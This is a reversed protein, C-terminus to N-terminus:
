RKAMKSRAAELIKREREDLSQIGQASIKDLIPDVERSIFEESPMEESPATPAAWGHTKLVPVRRPPRQHRKFKLRRWGPFVFPISERLRIFALGALIGGLHAAHAVNGLSNAVLKSTPAGVGVAAIVLSIWLLTIARMNVPIIFFILMTLQREPNLIAFAAVVGFIGASAGVVCNFFDSPFYGPWLFSVLMQLLGGAVGSTFYLMLYRAKGLTWEVERGFVYLAWCNLILHLISGHLFQFSLLQWVYGHRLGELSLALYPEIRGLITKQLIFAAVIVILLVVTASRRGGGYSETARMYDRNELM